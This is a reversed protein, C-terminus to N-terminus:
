TSRRLTVRYTYQEPLFHSVALEVPTGVADSYLRDVRLMPHGVGCGVADAVQVDAADVTISQAAEVIPERLHPETLGIITSTSVAGYRIEPSDLVARSVSEPLHVRTLVFPVGDHCRRFVVTYVVDDVLRLRSAVDVDVRRRLGSVVEMTTDESLSMLDEISGLQRLYRRGSESAYTGRGPVRYVVGEAVLDQFARRVTQRSLGHRAVLESETPLRAGDRYLGAAIEDRLQQRLTQYAPASKM